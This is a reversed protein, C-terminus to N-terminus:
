LRQGRWRQGVQPKWYRHGRRNWNELYNPPLDEKRNGDRDMRYGLGLVRSRTSLDVAWYHGNTCVGEFLNWDAWPGSVAKGPLAPANCEPCLYPKEVFTDTDSPVWSPTDPSEPM